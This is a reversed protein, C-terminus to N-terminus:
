PPTAFYHQKCLTFFRQVEKKKLPKETAQPLAEQIWTNTCPKGDALKRGCNLIQSVQPQARAKKGLVSYIEATSIAPIAFKYIGNEQLEPPLNESLVGKNWAGLVEWFANTDLLYPKM